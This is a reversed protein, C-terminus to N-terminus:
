RENQKKIKNWLIKAGIVSGLTGLVAILFAEMGLNAFQNVVQQNMGVELGLLFLLLWILLLILRNLFSFKKSRLLYGSIMGAFMFLLVYFM